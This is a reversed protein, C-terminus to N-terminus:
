SIFSGDTCIWCLYNFKWLFESASFFYPIVGNAQNDTPFIVLHHEICILWRARKDVREFSPGRVSDPELSFANGRWRMLLEMVWAFRLKNIGKQRTLSYMFRAYQLINKNIGQKTSFCDWSNSSLYFFSPTQEAGPRKTWPRNWHSHNPSPFTFNSTLTQSWLLMSFVAPDM